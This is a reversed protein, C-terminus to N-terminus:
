EEESPNTIPPIILPEEGPLVIQMPQIDLIDESEPEHNPQPQPSSIQSSTKTKKLNTYHLSLPLEDTPSPTHGPLDLHIHNTPSYPELM